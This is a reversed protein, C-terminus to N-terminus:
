FSFAKQPSYSDPYSESHEFKRHTQFFNVGFGHSSRFQVDITSFGSFRIIQQHLLTLSFTWPQSRRLPLKLILLENKLTWWSFILKIFMSTDTMINDQFAMHLICWVSCFFLVSSQSDYSCNEAKQFTGCTSSLFEEIRSYAFTVQSVKPCTHPCPM